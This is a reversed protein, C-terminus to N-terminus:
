QLEGAQPHFLEPHDQETAPDPTRREAGEYGACPRRREEGDHRALVPTDLSADM